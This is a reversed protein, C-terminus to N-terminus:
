ASSQIEACMQVLGVLEATEDLHHRRAACCDLIHGRVMVDKPLPIRNFVVQGEKLGLARRVEKVDVEKGTLHAVM